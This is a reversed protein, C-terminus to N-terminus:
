MRESARLPCPRVHRPLVHAAWRRQAAARGEGRRVQIAQMIVPLDPSGDKKLEYTVLNMMIDFLKKDVRVDIQHDAPLAAVFQRLEAKLLEPKSRLDELKRVTGDLQSSVALPFAYPAASSVVACLLARPQSLSPSPPATVNKKREGGARTGAAARERVQSSQGHNRSRTSIRQKFASCLLRGRTVLVASCQSNVTTRQEM